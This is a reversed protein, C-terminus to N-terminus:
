DETTPEDAHDPETSREPEAEPEAEPAEGRLAQHADAANHSHRLWTEVPTPDREM